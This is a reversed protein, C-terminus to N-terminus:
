QKPAKKLKYLSKVLKCVKKKQSPVIFGELQKTYIEEDLDTNLFDTKVDVQHIELNQLAAIVIIMRIFTIRTIPSQTDFYDLSEKQRFGKIVHRTKYKDISEDVKM